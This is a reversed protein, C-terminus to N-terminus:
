AFVDNPCEVHRNTSKHKIDKRGLLDDFMSVVAENQMLESESQPDTSQRLESQNSENQM